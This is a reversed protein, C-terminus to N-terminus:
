SASRKGAGGKHGQHVQRRGLAPEEAAEMPVVQPALHRTLWHSDRNEEARRGATGLEEASPANSGQKPELTKRKTEGGEKTTPQSSSRKKATPAAQKSEAAAQAGKRLAYRERQRANVGDRTARKKANKVEEKIEAALKRLEELIEMKPM